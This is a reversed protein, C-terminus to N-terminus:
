AARRSRRAVDSHDGASAVVARAPVVGHVPTVIASLREAYFGFWVLSQASPADRLPVDRFMLRGETWALYQQLDVDHAVRVSGASDIIGLQARTVFASDTRAHQGPQTAAPKLVVAGEAVAVEVRPRTAYARVSFKTGIDRAVARATHVAFPHAEDHVVDFFAEGDLYVDRAHTFVGPFRLTSAVGLIVHTGDSLYV